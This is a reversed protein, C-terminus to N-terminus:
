SLLWPTFTLQQLAPIQLCKTYTRTFVGLGNTGGNVVRRANELNGVKLDARLRAEHQKLYRALIRSAVWQDHALLPNSILRGDAFLLKSYNAYNDRGTIQVFGRGRFLSADELGQNGLRSEYRDFPTGSPTTNSVCPKESLPLFRAAETGLTALAMAIMECDALHLEALGNLIFVLNAEINELPTFPLVGGILGANVAPVAAAPITRQLLGLTHATEADLRGTAPLNKGKQFDCLARAMQPGLEGDVDGEYIGARILICQVDIVDQGSHSKNQM